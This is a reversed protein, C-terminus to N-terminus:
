LAAIRTKFAAFDASAAVEAKLTAISIYGPINGNVADVLLTSDDAFVSGNIDGDMTGNLNINGTVAITRGDGAFISIDDDDHLTIYNNQNTIELTLPGDTSTITNTNINSTGTLESYDVRSNIWAGGVFKIVDNTTDGAFAVNSLNEINENAFFSSFSSSTLVTAPEYAGLSVSYALVQGETPLTATIDAFDTTRSPITPKNTLSNYNGDFLTPLSALDNYNGSIAVTALSSGNVTLNTTTVSDATITGSATVNVVNVINNGSLNLSDGSPLEKIKNNDATDVVLPYRVAM